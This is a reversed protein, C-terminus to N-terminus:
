SKIWWNPNQTYWDVIEVLSENFNELPRYDLNREIKEYSVSYRFDHGKRDAVFSIVDESAGMIAIVKQALDLNSLETGGGINYVEGSVGGMM